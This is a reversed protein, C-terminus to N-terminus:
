RRSKLVRTVVGLVFATGAIGALLATPNEEKIRLSRDRVTQGFHISGDRSSRYATTFFEAAHAQMRGFWNAAAAVKPALFLDAPPLQRNPDPVTQLNPNEAASM